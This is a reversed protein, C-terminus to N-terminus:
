GVRVLDRDLLGLILDDHYTGAILAAERERGEVAFGVKQYAAIARDNFDLVRCGLRHLGMTDFAHAALLAMATTGYGKGLASPDVIGIAIQARKDSYNITHLRVGGILAGKAEIVWANPDDSHASVWAQAAEPTIDRVASPDAGFMAQIEPTNGLAFRTHVDLPTADRLTIGAGQLVPKMHDAM